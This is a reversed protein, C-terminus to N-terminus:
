TRYGDLVYAEVSGLTGEMSKTSACESTSCDMRMYNNHIFLELRDRVLITTLTSKIGESPRRIHAGCRRPPSPHLVSFLRVDRSPVFLGSIM